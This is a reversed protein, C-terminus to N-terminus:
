EGPRDETVQPTATSRGSNTLLWRQVVRGVRELSEPTVKDCTDATTHWYPYDFDIIDVAPIGQNIFPTHDDTLGWRYQPVFYRRYGLENAVGWIERLLEPNSNAEWFINQDADGIMDLLVMCQPREQLHEAMYASGVAFPWDDVHGRDEADFFTLWIEQQLDADDLVRALELLVAVGSAGDNAGIIPEDPTDTDKEAIPRTDYHAGLIVIPGEGKKGIINRVGLGDYDFLQETITWGHERLLAIIYDGVGRGAETGTPRPGMACQDLAYSYAMEGNFTSTDTVVPTQAVEGCAVGAYPRLSTYEGVGGWASARVVFVYSLVLGAVVFMMLMVPRRSLIM